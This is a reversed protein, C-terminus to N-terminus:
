APSLRVLPANADDVLVYLDGTDPAETVARIRWGRNALLPDLEEVDEGDVSFRGLYQGALNGVFLDGQWAPFADGRYFWMGSPPFGGSNCPWYYVPDVVDDRDGPEDGIPEGDGYTCGYHALPWGFNGGAELVNIEDGDQEGHDTVWIADTDPHVTMGQVNRHGYSFIAPEVDEEGVFPNDDPVTGDPALRLVSGWGDEKRQSPHDASFEKDQRDGTSVYVHDDPGIVVRSGFHGDSEKFPEVAYLEELDVLAPEDADLMARALHTSSLGDEDTAVYTLFVTPDDNGDAGVAVDLLGGQGAVHIDPLGTVESMSGDDRDVLQLRGERETVLLFSPDPLFTLGWPHALGDVVTEVDEGPPDDDPDATEDGDDPDDADDVDDIDDAGDIADEDDLEDADDEDDVVDTDDVDDGDDIPPEDDDDADGLCGALALGTGLVVLCRRRTTPPAPDPM